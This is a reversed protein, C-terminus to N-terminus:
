AETATGGVGVTFSENDAVPTNDNVPTITINVVVTSSNNVGDFVHYSFSDSLNETGDHQYSFTGDGNLTFSAANAPGSDLVATLTDGPADTDSDNDLVSTAGGDLVTITGGEAVTATEAVATPTNDNIPTITINVVVTSSNNVGDFVHYSFSDSLNETGDHQYSFTGDANLTFSAANAPGSDLVTTLTDGPADADSDNDLVSTAGGDFVTVTGGEAVTATEAVAVPTNDNVATVTFNFTGAAPTAGDEGGDALSFNFSDSITESGDHDYTVRGANIDDQTFTDNLGLAAGSLRLTGNDTADTLTYTLEANDDDPDGENLMADTIVNGSSNESVTTGTNVGVTPADNVPIVNLTATATQSSFASDDGNTSVDVATDGNSGFTQDLGPVDFGGRHRQLGSQARLARPAGTDLLVAASDSVTGVRGLHRRRECRVAM